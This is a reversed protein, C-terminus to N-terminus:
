LQDAVRAYIDLAGAAFGELFEPDDRNSPDDLEEWFNTCDQRNAEDEPFLLFVFNEANGYATTGSPDFDFDNDAGLESLKELQAYEAIDKVWKEGYARGERYVDKGHSLKSGKLRQIVASMDKEQKRKAINGLEIEFARRAVDSWNVPEAVKDMRAKLDDPISITTRAM